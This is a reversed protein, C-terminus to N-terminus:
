VCRKVLKKSCLFIYVVVFKRSHNLDLYTPYWFYWCRMCRMTRSRRECVICNLNFDIFSFIKCAVVLGEKCAVIMCLDCHGFLLHVIWLEQLGQGWTVTYVAAVVNVDRDKQTRVILARRIYRSASLILWYQSIVFTSKWSWSKIKLFSQIM